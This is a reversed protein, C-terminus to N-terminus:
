RPPQDTIPEPAFWATIASTEGADLKASVRQSKPMYSLVGSKLQLRDLTLTQLQGGDNVNLSAHDVGRMADANWHFLLSGNSETSNLTLAPKPMWSDQALFVMAGAALAAVASLIWGLKRRKRLPQPLPQSFLLSSVDFQKVTSQSLAPAAVAETNAEIAPKVELPEAEISEVEVSEVKVSPAPRWEDVDCEVGKVVRGNKDRFFFAAHMPEVAYPRLVLAIQWSDRFLEAYFSLDFENLTASGRAKSCYWGIVGPKGTGGPVGTRAITDRSQRKEEATLNFSPGSAHACPIQISGLLRIFGKEREGLLIGGVGVAVRPVAMLGDRARKRIQEM